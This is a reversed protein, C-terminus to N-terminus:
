KIIGKMEELKESVEESVEGSLHACNNADELQMVNAHAMARFMHARALFTKKIVKELDSLRVSVLSDVEKKKEENM